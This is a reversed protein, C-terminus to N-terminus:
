TSAGTAPVPRQKLEVVPLLRETKTQYEGFVPAQKVVAAFLLDRDDGSTIVATAPFTESGMEVIMEPNAVVNSYWPPNVDAGGMSAIVVLRGGDVFFYGLPVTRKAGTKAGTMTLLLLDLEELEGPVKGANNRFVEILAGNFRKTHGGPGTPSTVEATLAALEAVTLELKPEAM